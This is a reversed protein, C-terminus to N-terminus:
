KSILIGAALGIAGFIWKLPKQLRNEREVVKINHELNSIIQNSNSLNKKYGEIVSLQAKEKVLNLNIISDKSALRSEALTLAKKTLDLEQERVKGVEILNIAKKVQEVPLCVTDKSTQSIGDLAILM